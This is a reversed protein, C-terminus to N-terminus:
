AVPFRLSRGDFGPFYDNFVRFVFVMCLFEGPDMERYRSLLVPHVDTLDEELSPM